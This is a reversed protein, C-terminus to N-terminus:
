AALSFLLAMANFLGHLLICPYLSGTRERLWALGAGFLFLIPLGEILGHTAAFGAATAVIAVPVGFRRLLGFGVGRFLLEEVVPAAVVVVLANAFFAGARGEDWTRPTLGQEEGPDLLPSMAAAAAYVAVLVGAIGAVAQGWSRPEVLAFLERRRGTALVYVVAFIVAYQVLAAAATDYRYFLDRPVEGSGSLRGIYNVASMLVVLAIWADLRGRM